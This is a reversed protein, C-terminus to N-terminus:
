PEPRRPLLATPDIEQVANSAVGAVRADSNTMLRRLEALAPRASAGRRGLEAAALRTVYEDADSLAKTLAPVVLEPRTKLSGLCNLVRARIAKNTHLLSQLLAPVAAESTRALRCLGEAVAQEAATANTSALAKVLYPLAM